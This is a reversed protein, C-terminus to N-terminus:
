TGAVTGPVIPTSTSLLVSPSSENSCSISLSASLRFQVCGNSEGTSHGSQSSSSVTGSTRQSPISLATTMRTWTANKNSITGGRGWTRPGLQAATLLIFTAIRFSRPAHATETPSLLCSCLGCYILMCTCAVKAGRSADLSFVCRTTWLSTLFM